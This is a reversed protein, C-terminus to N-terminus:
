NFQGNAFCPQSKVSRFTGFYVSPLRWFHVISHGTGGVQERFFVPLQQFDNKDLVNFFPPPLLADRVEACGEAQQKM